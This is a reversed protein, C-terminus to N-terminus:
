ERFRKLLVSRSKNNKRVITRIPRMETRARGDTRGGTMVCLSKVQFRFHTSFVLIPTFTAWSLLWWWRHTLKWSLLYLYPNPKSSSWHRWTRYRALAALGSKISLWSCQIYTAGGQKQRMPPKSECTPVRNIVRFTHWKRSTKQTERCEDDTM